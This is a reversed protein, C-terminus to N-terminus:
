CCNETGGAASKRSVAFVVGNQPINYSSSYKLLYGLEKEFCTRNRSRINMECASPDNEFFIWGRRVGPVEVLLEREAEQRSETSCFDIDAVACKLGDRLATILTRFKRSDRFRSCDNFAMAKFDDFVLWGDTFMQCLYTTKGCGPLGALLIVNENM